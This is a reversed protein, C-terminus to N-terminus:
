SGKRKRRLWKVLEYVLWLACPIIGVLSLLVAFVHAGLGDLM